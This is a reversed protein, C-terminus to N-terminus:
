PVWFGLKKLRERHLTYLWTRTLFCLQNVVDQGHEQALTIVPAQTSPDLLLSLFVEPSSSTSVQIIPLLHPHVQLFSSWHAAAAATASALGPCQGTALHLLTGPLDGSCGPVRCMGTEEHGWHRRLWCTRYRGSGMRAQVTAKKTEYTSNHCSTWIPSPSCLSMHSAKFYILSPKSAAETRFKSSWLKIVAHKTVKKWEAKPPPNAFVYLPDPLAYEQCLARVQLFWSQRSPLQSAPPDSLIQCGHHHLISSPGLRAIMGLLSLQRLHLVASAPLTGALFFVVPAPTKPYLKQLHELKEKHHHDLIDQEANSLVLAALGSLLVPLGYLKEVHLSAAANSSHHQAIGAPLVAFLARNHASMRALLSPSNGPKTYRLIGM